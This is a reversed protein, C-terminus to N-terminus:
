KKAKLGAKSNGGALAPPPCIIKIGNNAKALVNNKLNKLDM